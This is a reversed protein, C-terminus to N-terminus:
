PLEVDVTKGALLKGMFSKQSDTVLVNVTQGLAAATLTRGLMEITIPGKHFIVRVADSAHVSLAATQRNAKMALIVRGSGQTLPGASFTAEVSEPSSRVIQFTLVGNQPLTGNVQVSSVEIDTMDNGLVSSDVLFDVCRDLLSIEDDSVLGRPIVLSRSGVFISDRGFADAVRDIYASSPIFLISNSVSAVDQALIEGASVPADGGSPKVLDGLRVDGPDTVYVRQVYVTVGRAEVERAAVALTLLTLFRLAAIRAM